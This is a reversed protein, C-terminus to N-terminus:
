QNLWDMYLKVGQEVTKFPKDYGAGRLASIDAETYSQYRGKLHQPFPIYEIVGKKHWDIVADAVDKFSQAKGTGINFIGSIKPNDILWAKVACVDGVYVFDRLQGGNGYGDTGEFLKCLGTQPIQTNLKYAVSAMDGKHQEGPGYVNFYRLGVVQIKIDDWIARLYQDFQFKSYAYMNLPNEFQRDEKFTPGMGYVSASSAYIFSAEAEECAHFLSKTYEFNNRMIFQGDWETTSSCAGMHIVHTTGEPLGFRLVEELFDHKDMYDKTNRGVINFFKQEADESLDDVVLIDTIGQENLLKVMYSGIFGAGGTVVIM